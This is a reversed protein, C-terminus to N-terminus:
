SRVKSGTAGAIGSGMGFDAFEGVGGGEEMGVSGENGKANIIPTVKASVSAVVKFFEGFQRDRVVGVGRGSVGACVRGGEEHVPPRSVERGGDVTGQSGADM